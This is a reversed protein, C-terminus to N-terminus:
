LSIVEDISPYTKGKSNHRLGIQHQAHHQEIQDARSELVRKTVTDGRQTLKRLAAVGIRWKDNHALNEQNNFDIIADIARNVEEEAEISRKSLKRSNEQSSSEPKSKISQSKKTQEVPEVAVSTHPAQGVQTTLNNYNPKLNTSANSRNNQSLNSQRHHKKSLAESLLRISTSLQNLSHSDLTASETLDLHCLSLNNSARAQLDEVSEFIAQPNLDEVELQEALSLGMETWTFLAQITQDRTIGLKDAITSLRSQFFSPITM